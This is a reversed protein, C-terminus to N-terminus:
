NFFYDGYEAKDIGLIESWKTIDSQSFGVKGTMKKSLSTMSIGIKESFNKPCGYKEVIKGRLKGYKYGM